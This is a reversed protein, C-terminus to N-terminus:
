VAFSLPLFQTSVHYGKNPFFLVKNAPIFVRCQSCQLDSKCKGIILESNLKKDFGICVATKGHYETFDLTFMFSLFPMDPETFEVDEPRFFIKGEMVPNSYDIQNQMKLPGSSLTIGATCVRWRGNEQKLEGQISNGMGVFRAVYSTKPVTYINEPTDIQIIRGEGMVAIRDSIALAEEQDHTVYLTTIGLEKQMRRIERRLKIRLKADVASLPEDMLLLDPEPALSRAIAVRQREGGSLENPNRKALNQIHFFTLLYSLREKKYARSANRTNLGYLINEEVSMHPFLAYEQFVYGINRSYPPKGAINTNSLLIKGESEMLGAICRLLTTKGCGSPGLISLLEGQKATFDAQLHFNGLRTHMQQVELSM